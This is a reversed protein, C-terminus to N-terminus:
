GYFASGLFLKKKQPCTPTGWTIWNNIANKSHATNTHNPWEGEDYTMLHIAHVANLIRKQESNNITDPFFWTGGPLAITIRKSPLADKLAELLAICQNWEIIQQQLPLLNGNTDVGPREWDIDVGDFGHVNVFNVINNVFTNLNSNNTAQPFHEDGGVCISVKIDKAHARSILSELWLNKNGNWGNPLKGTFLSGDGFCGIDSAIVHTLRELQANTPFGTLPYEELEEIWKKGYGYGVITNQALIAVPLFLAISVVIILKLSYMKNM